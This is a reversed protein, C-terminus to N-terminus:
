PYVKWEIIRMASDLWRKLEAVSADDHVVFAIGGADRIRELTAEQLETAKGGPRKAEIALFVGKVCVLYDVTRAGYGGPVPMFMYLHKGYSDLLTKIKKKIAGEPTM